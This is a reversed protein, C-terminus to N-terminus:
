PPSSFLRNLPIYDDALHGPRIVSPRPITRNRVINTLGKWTSLYLTENHVHSFIYKYWETPHTYVGMEFAACYARAWSTHNVAGQLAAPLVGSIFADDVWLFRVYPSVRYMAVAVDSSAVFGMGSCYPPYLDDPFYDKTLSWQGGERDVHMKWFVYCMILRRRFNQAHLLQLHNLIVYMNVFMDDDTKLVYATHNCYTSIWKLAGVGKHSLNKYTDLFDEQVVDGYRKSEYKLYDQHLRGDTTNLQPLGVFFVVRIEVGPYNTHKGWTERIRKRRKFHKVATHVYCLLFVATDKCVDPSNILYRFPHPNLVPRSTNIYIETDDAELPPRLSSGPRESGESLLGNVFDIERATDADADKDTEGTETQKKEVRVNKDSKFERPRFKKMRQKQKWSPQKQTELVLEKKVIPTKTELSIEIEEMNEEVEDQVGNSSAEMFKLAKGSKSRGNMAPGLSRDDDIENSEVEYDGILVLFKLYEVTLIVGVGMLVMTWINRRSSQNAM